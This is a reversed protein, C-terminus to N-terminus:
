KPHPIMELLIYADGRIIFYFRWNRTIRAQWIDGAVDFKKAQLSPHRLNVALFDIQKDLAHRIRPPAAFYSGNFKNTRQVTM